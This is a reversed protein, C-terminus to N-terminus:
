CYLFIMVNEGNTLHRRKSLLAQYEGNEVNEADHLQTM